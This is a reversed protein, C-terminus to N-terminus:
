LNDVVHFLSKQDGVCQAVSESYYGTKAKEIMGKVVQRQECNAQHDIELKSRRWKDELERRFM